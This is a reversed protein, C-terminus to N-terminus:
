RICMLKTGTANHKSDNEQIRQDRGNRALNGHTEQQRGAHPCGILEVLKEKRRIANRMVRMESTGNDTCKGAILM